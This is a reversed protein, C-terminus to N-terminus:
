SPPNLTSDNEYIAKLKLFYAYEQEKKLKKKKFKEQRFKENTKLRGILEERFANSTVILEVEYEDHSIKIDEPKVAYEKCLTQIHNIAEDANKTNLIFYRETKTSIKRKECQLILQEYSMEEFPTKAM